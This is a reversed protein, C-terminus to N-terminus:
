CWELAGESREFGCGVMGVKEVGTKKLHEMVAAVKPKVATWPIHEKLWGVLDGM